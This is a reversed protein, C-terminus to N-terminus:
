NGLKEKWKERFEREAEVLKEKQEALNKRDSELKKKAEKITECGFLSKLRELLSELQGQTKAEERTLSERETKLRLYDAPNM